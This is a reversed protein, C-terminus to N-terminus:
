PLPERYGLVRRTPYPKISVCNGQNGGLVITDREHTGVYFAVHGYLGVRSKRWFVVVCGPFPDCPRGWKLWSRAAKSRTGEVHVQDLSWNAFSSCWATEDKARGGGETAAHYEVIRPNDQDGPIERQGLENLAYPMWPARGWTGKPVLVSDFFRSEFVPAGLGDTM